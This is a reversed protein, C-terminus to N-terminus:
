QWEAAAIIEIAIKLKGDEENQTAKREYKVTYVGYLRISYTRVFFLVM